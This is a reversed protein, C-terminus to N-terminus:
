AQHPNFWLSMHQLSNFNSCPMKCLLQNKVRSSYGLIFHLWPLEDTTQHDYLLGISLICHITFLALSALLSSNSSNVFSSRDQLDRFAERQHDWKLVSLFLLWNRQKKKCFQDNMLPWNLYESNTHTYLFCPAMNSLQLKGVLCLPDRLELRCLHLSLGIVAPIEDISASNYWSTKSLRNTTLLAKGIIYM